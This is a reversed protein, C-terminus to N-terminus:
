IKRELAKGDGTWPKAIVDLNTQRVTSAYALQLTLPPCHGRRDLLLRVRVTRGWRIEGRVPTGEDEFSSQKMQFFSPDIVFWSSSSSSLCFMRMIHIALPTITSKM